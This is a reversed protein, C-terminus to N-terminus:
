KGCSQVSDFWGPKFHEKMGRIEHKIDNHSHEVANCTTKEILKTRLDAIQDNKQDILSYEIKDKIDSTNQDMSAKLEYSRIDQNHIIAGTDKAQDKILETHKHDHDHDGGQNKLLGLFPLLKEWGGEDRRDGKLWAFAIIIAFIIFVIFAFGWWAGSSYDHGAGIRDGGRVDHM